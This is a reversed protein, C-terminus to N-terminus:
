DPYLLFPRRADDFAATEAGMAAALDWPSAGALLDHRLSEDGLLLDM